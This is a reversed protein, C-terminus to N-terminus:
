PSSQWLEYINWTCFAVVLVLHASDLAFAGHNIFAFFLTIGVAACQGLLLWSFYPKIVQAILAVVLFVLLPLFSSSLNELRWIETLQHTNASLSAVSLFVASILLIGYFIIGLMRM